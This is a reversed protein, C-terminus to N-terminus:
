EKATDLLTTLMECADRVTRVKEAMEDPIDVQFADEATMIFEVQDLSDYNLDQIFHSDLSVAAPEVGAQDAALRCVTALLEEPTMLKTM